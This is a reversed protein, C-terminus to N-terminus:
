ISFMARFVNNEFFWRTVKLGELAEESFSPLTNAFIELVAFVLISVIQAWALGLVLGLVGGLLKDIGSVIPIKINKTLKVIFRVVITCIIFVIAFAIIRSLVDVTLVGAVIGAGEPVSKNIIGSIYGGIMPSFYWAVIASLIFGAVDIIVGILGRKAYLIVSLVIIAVILFDILFSM